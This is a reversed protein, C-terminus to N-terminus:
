YCIKFNAHISCQSNCLICFGTAPLFKDDVSCASPEDPKTNRSGLIDSDCAEQGAQPYITAPLGARMPLIQPELETDMRMHINLERLEQKKDIQQNSMALQENGRQMISM